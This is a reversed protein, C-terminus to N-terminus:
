EKRGREQNRQVAKATRPNTRCVMSVRLSGGAEVEQIRPNFAHAAVEPCNFYSRFIKAFGPLFVWLDDPDSPTGEDGCSGGGHCGLDLARPLPYSEKLTQIQSNGGGAEFGELWDQPAPEGSQAGSM